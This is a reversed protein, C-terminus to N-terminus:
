PTEKPKVLDAKIDAKLAGGTRIQLIAQEGIPIASSNWLSITGKCKGIKKGLLEFTNIKLFKQLDDVTM